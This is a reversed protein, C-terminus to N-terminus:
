GSCSGRASTPVAGPSSAFPPRIARYPCGVLSVLPSGFLSGGGSVLEGQVGGVAMSDALASLKRACKPGARSIRVIGLPKPRSTPPGFSAALAGLGLGAWPEPHALFEAAAHLHREEYQTGLSCFHGILPSVLISLVFWGLIIWYWNNVIWQLVEYGPFNM